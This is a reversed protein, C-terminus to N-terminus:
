DPGTDRNISSNVAVIVEHFMEPALRDCVENKTQQKAALKDASLGAGQWLLRCSSGLVLEESLPKGTISRVITAAIIWSGLTNPHVNPLLIKTNENASSFALMAAGVDAVEVDLQSAIRHAELSLARQLEPISQYTSFWIVRAGTSRILDIADSLPKSSAACADIATSCLPWGGFDQLVVIDYSSGVLLSKLAGNALHQEISYGGEALMDPEIGLNEPVVSYIESVMAPVDNYYTLSNGVFLIRPLSYDRKESHTCASLTIFISIISLSKLLHKM